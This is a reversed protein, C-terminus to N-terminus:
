HAARDSISSTPWTKSRQSSICDLQICASRETPNWQMGPLAKRHLRLGHQAMFHTATRANSHKATGDVDNERAHLEPTATRQAATRKPASGDQSKCQEGPEGISRCVMSGMRQQRHCVAWPSATSQRAVGKPAKCIREQCHSASRYQSNWHKGTAQLGPGAIGNAASVRMANRAQTGTSSLRQVGNSVSGHKSRCHVSQM